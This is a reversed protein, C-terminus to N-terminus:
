PNVLLSCISARWCKSVFTWIIRPEPVGNARCYLRVYRDEGEKYTVESKNLNTSFINPFEM